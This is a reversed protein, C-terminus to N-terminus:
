AKLKKVACRVGCPCVGARVRVSKKENSERERERKRERETHREGGGEQIRASEKTARCDRTARAVCQACM